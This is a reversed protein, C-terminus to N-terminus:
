NIHIVCLMSKIRIKNVLRTQSLRQAKSHFLPSLYSQVFNDLSFSRILYLGELKELMVQEPVLSPVTIIQILNIYFGFNQSM